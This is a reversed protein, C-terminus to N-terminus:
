SSLSSFMSSAFGTFNNASMRRGLYFLFIIHIVTTNYNVAFNGARHSDAFRIPRFNLTNGYHTTHAHDTAHHHHLLFSLPDFIAVPPVDEDVVDAFFSIWCFWRFQVLAPFGEAQQWDEPRQINRHSFFL